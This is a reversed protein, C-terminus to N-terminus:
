LRVLGLPIIEQNPFYDNAHDDVFWKIGNKLCFEVKNATIILKDYEINLNKLEQIRQNRFHEDYDTILIVEHGSKRLAKFVISYYEPADTIVGDVDYGLKM